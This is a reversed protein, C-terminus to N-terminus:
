SKLSLSLASSNASARAAEQSASKPANASQGGFWLLKTSSSKQSKVADSGSTTFHESEVGMWSVSVASQSLEGKPGKRNAGGGDGAVVNETPDTDGFFPTNIKSSPKEWHPPIAKSIECDRGTLFSVSTPSPMPSSSSSSNSSPESLEAVSAHKVTRLLLLGLSTSLSESDSASASAGANDGASRGPSQLDNSVLESGAARGVIAKNRGDASMALLGGLWM